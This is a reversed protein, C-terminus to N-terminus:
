LHAEVRRAAAETALMSLPFFNLGLVVVAGTLSYTWNSLLDRGAMQAVLGASGGIYIWALGLIYSPIVLPIVLALRLFRKVPLDSRALLLGLPAGILTALVTTGIGLFISNALLARQREDMFLRGYNKASFGGAPGIFSAGFMYLVPLVCVAIFIAAAIGLVIARQSLLAAIPQPIARNKM